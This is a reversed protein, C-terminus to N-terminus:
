NESLPMYPPPDSCLPVTTNPALLLFLKGLLQPGVNPAGCGGDNCVVNYNATTELVGAQSQGAFLQQLSNPAPLNLSFNGPTTSSNPLTVTSVTYGVPYNGTNSLTFDDFRVHGAANDFVAVQQPSYALVAGQATEHLGINHPADGATQTTIVLTDAFADNATNAPRQVANPQVNIITQGSPLPYFTGQV